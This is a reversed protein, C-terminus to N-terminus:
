AVLTFVQAGVRWSIDTVALGTVNVNVFAGVVAFAADLGADTEISSVVTTAGVQALVGGDSQFLGILEYACTKNGGVKRGIVKVKIQVVSESVVGIALATTAVAGATSLTAFVSQGAAQAASDAPELVGPVNPDEAVIIGIIGRNVLDSLAPDGMQAPNLAVVVSGNAAIKRSVPAPVILDSSQNNIITVLAM